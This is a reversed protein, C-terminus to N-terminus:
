DYAAKDPRPLGVPPMQGTRLKRIVKEWVQPTETVDDVNMKDLLLDAPKLKENHCTVCYKNLLVRQPSVNSPAPSATQLAAGQACVVGSLLIGMWGLFKRNM